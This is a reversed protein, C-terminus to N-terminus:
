IYICLNINLKQMEKMNILKICISRKLWLRFYLIYFKNKNACMMTDFHSHFPFFDLLYHLSLAQLYSLCFASSWQENLKIAISKNVFVWFYIIYLKAPRAYMRLKRLKMKKGECFFNMKLSKKTTNRNHTYDRENQM